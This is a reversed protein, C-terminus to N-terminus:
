LVTSVALLPLMKQLNALHILRAWDLKVQGLEAVSESPLHGLTSGLQELLRWELSRVISSM